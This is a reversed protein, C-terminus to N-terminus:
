PQAGAPTASTTGSGTPPAVAGTDAGATQQPDTTTAPAAPTTGTATVGPTATATAAAPPVAPLIGPSGPAAGPATGEPQAQPDQELDLGGAVPREPMRVDVYTAGQSSRQALVATAAAWKRDLAEARGFIVVPGDKLEAVAGRGHQVSISEIRPLLRSPAAAAVAVRERAPGAPMRASSPLGGVDITPLSGDPKVGDLVTGDPAVAVQRGGGVLLAVPRNEVVTIRLGHPFDAEVSLSHVSPEDAVALRLAAANVHLTTMHRAAATLKARVKPGDATHIGTVTVKEVRVLSSDRFWLMYGAGLALALLLLALLRRRTRPTLSLSRPATVVARPVALAARPVAAVVRPLAVVAKPLRGISQV